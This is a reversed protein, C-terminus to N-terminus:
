YGSFEETKIDDGSVGADDLIKRTAGVMAQPGATYYIANARDPAHKAILDQTIYSREGDWTQKSAEAQTMTPIFTFHKNKTALAELEGMFAVDEPRRNSYFLFLKHPLTRAAADKLISMFPTIGIGGVLFIGARAANEHLTFSGMPGDIEIPMGAKADRLTRKFATDRMRTAIALHDEQPAAVISFTRTNGEADTEPPNLLTFDAYQGAKFAFGEPKKFRLLMTGEAVPEQSIFGSTYKMFTFGLSLKSGKEIKSSLISRL